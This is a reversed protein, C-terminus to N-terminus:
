RLHEAFEWTFSKSKGGFRLIYDFVGGVITGDEDGFVCRKREHPSFVMHPASNILDDQTYPQTDPGDYIKHYQELLQPNEEIFGILTKEKDSINTIFFATSSSNSVFGNRIKM